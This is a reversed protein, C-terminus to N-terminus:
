PVPKKGVKIEPLAKLTKLEFPIVADSKGASIYGRGADLFGALGIVVLATITAIWSLYSGVRTKKDGAYFLGSAVLLASAVVITWEHWPRGHQLDTLESAISRWWIFRLSALWAIGAVMVWALARGLFAARDM